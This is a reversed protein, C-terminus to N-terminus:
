NSVPPLPRNYQIPCGPQFFQAEAAPRCFAQTNSDGWRHFDWEQTTLDAEVLLKSAPVYVIVGHAM